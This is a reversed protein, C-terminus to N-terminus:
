ADSSVGMRHMHEMHQQWHATFPKSFHQRVDIRFIRKQKYVHFANLLRRGEPSDDFRSHNRELSMLTGADNKFIAM